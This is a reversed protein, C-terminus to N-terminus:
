VEVGERRLIIRALSSARLKEEGTSEGSTIKNLLADLEKQLLISSRAADEKLPILTEVVDTGKAM